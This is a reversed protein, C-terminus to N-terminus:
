RYHDSNHISSNDDDEDREEENESSEEDNHNVFKLQKKFSQSIRSKNSKHNQIKKEGIPSM